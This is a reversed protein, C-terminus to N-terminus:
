AGAGCTCEIPMAADSCRGSMRSRAPSSTPSAAFSQGDDTAPDPNEMVGTPETPSAATRPAPVDTRRIMDPFPRDPPGSIAETKGSSAAGEGATDVDAHDPRGLPFIVDEASVDLGLEEAKALVDPQRTAPIRGSSKWSQVTSPPEDLHDAMPRVGGFKDFLTMM